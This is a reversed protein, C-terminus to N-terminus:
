HLLQMNDQLKSANILQWSICEEYIVCHTYNATVAKRRTIVFQNGTQIVM